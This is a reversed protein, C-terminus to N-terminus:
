MRRDPAATARAASLLRQVADALPGSARAVQLRQQLELLQALAESRQGARLRLLAQTFSWLDRQDDRVQAAPFLWEFTALLDRAPLAELWHRADAERYSRAFLHSWLRRAAAEPMPTGDVRMGDAIQLAWGQLDERTIAQSLALERAFARDRPAAIARDLRARADAVERGMFLLNHGWMALAYVNAADARLAQPYSALPDETAAGERWELFTAWGLHARLDAARQGQAGAAMGATLVAKLPAVFQAFTQGASSGIRAHRLWVMACGERAERWAQVQRPPEPLASLAQWAPAFSGGECLKALRQAEAVTRATERTATRDLQWRWGLGVLGAVALLAAGGRLATATGGGGQGSGGLPWWRRWGGAREAWQAVALVTEAVLDGEPRLLTVAQLYAPLAAIPVDKVMVPLVHGSPRRWRQQAVALETRCYSGQAVSAPTVLFVLLDAALMAARLPEHFSEGSRLDSRDQFVEHGEAELALRLRDATDREESPYSLFLKM